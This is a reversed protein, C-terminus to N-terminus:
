AMPYPSISSSSVNSGMASVKPLQGKRSTIVTFIVRGTLVGSDGGLDGEDRGHGRHATPSSTARAPRPPICVLSVTFGEAAPM